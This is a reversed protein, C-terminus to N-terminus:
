QAANEYAALHSGIIDALTQIAFKDGYAPEFALRSRM